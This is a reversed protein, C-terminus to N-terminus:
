HMSSSRRGSPIVQLGHQHVLLDARRVVQVRGAKGAPGNSQDVALSDAPLEEGWRVASLRNLEFQDNFGRVELSTRQGTAATTLLRPGSCIEPSPSALLRFHM